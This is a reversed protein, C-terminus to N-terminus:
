LRTKFPLFAFGFAISAHMHRYILRLGQWNNGAGPM